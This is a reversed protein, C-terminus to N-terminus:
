GAAEEDRTRLARRLAEACLALTLGYVLHVALGRAHASLPYARNPATIGLAPCVGEDVLVSLGAGLATGAALPGLGPARRLPPYLAGWLSGLGYHICSKMIGIRRRTRRVGLAEATMRAAQEASSCGPYDPERLKETVPTLRYFLRQAKDSVRTAVYGACLAIALDILIPRGPV